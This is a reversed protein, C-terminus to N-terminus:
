HDHAALHREALGSRVFDLHIETQTLAAALQHESLGTWGASWTLRSAVEWVSAGPSRELAARVERTRRLQHAAVRACREAIGRFQYEHGPAAEYDDFESVTELSTLYAELDNSEADGGLGIGSNITPLLHDGTFLIRQDADRICLHGSTHGPTHIVQLERGAVPLRDGATCAHDVVPSTIGRAPRRSLALRGRHAAPVGWREALAQPDPRAASERFDRTARVEDHHLLLQAGSAERLRGALGLHDPHLHTAVITKVRDPHAGIESLRHRFFEWNAKSDTGPDLVLLDGAADAILYCLNFAPHGGHTPLAFSWMGEALSELGPLEDRAAAAFQRERTAQPM